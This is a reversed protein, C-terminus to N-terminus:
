RLVMELSSKTCEALNVCNKIHKARIIIGLDDAYGLIEFRTERFTSLYEDVM